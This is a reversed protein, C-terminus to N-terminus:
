LDDQLVTAYSILIIYLFHTPLM